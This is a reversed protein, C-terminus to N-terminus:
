VPRLSEGNAFLHVRAPDATLGVTTRRAQRHIGPLKAIVGPRDGEAVFYLLTVEGLAEVYDVHGKYIAPGDTPVFDEPRIGINVPRGMADPQTVIASLAVGGDALTVETQAGTATIKGPLLNM